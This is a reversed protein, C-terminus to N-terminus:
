RQAVASWVVSSELHLCLWVCRLGGIHRCPIHGVSLCAAVGRGSDDVYDKNMFTPTRLNVAKM